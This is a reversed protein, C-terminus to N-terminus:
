TEMILVLINRRHSSHTLAPGLDPMVRCIHAYECVNVYECVRVCMSMNVCVRHPRVANPVMHAACLVMGPQVCYM